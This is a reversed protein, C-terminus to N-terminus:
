AMLGFLENAPVAHLTTVLRISWNVFRVRRCYFTSLLRLAWLRHEASEVMVVDYVDEVSRM